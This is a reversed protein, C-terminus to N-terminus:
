HGPRITHICIYSGRHGAIHGHRRWHRGLEPEAHPVARLMSVSASRTVLFMGALEQDTGTCSTGHM